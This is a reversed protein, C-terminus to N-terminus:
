PQVQGRRHKEAFIQPPSGAPAEGCSRPSHWVFGRSRFRGSKLQLVCVRSSRVGVGRGLRTAGRAFDIGDDLVAIGDEFLRGIGNGFKVGFEGFEDFVHEGGHVCRLADAEGSWLDSFADAERHDVDGASFFGSALITSTFGSIM